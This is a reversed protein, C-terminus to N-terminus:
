LKIKVIAKKLIGNGKSMCPIHADEPFVICFDGKKLNFSAADGSLLLYDNEEDYPKSETLTKIDAYGFEEEGNIIFHLDLFNKHVEFLKEGPAIEDFEAINIWFEGDRVTIRESSSETLGRLLEFAKAFDKNIGIYRDANEMNGLIM